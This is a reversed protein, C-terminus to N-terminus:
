ATSLARALWRLGLIRALRSAAGHSFATALLAGAMSLLSGLALLKVALPLTLRWTRFMM